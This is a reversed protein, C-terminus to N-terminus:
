MRFVSLAVRLPKLRQPTVKGRPRLSRNFAPSKSNAFNRGTALIGKGVVIGHDGILRFQMEPEQMAELLLPLDEEAVLSILSHRVLNGDGAM